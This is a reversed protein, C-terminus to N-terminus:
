FPRSGPSGRGGPGTRDGPNDRSGPGERSPRANRATRTGRQPPLGRPSVPRPRDDMAPRTIEPRRAPEAPGDVRVVGQRSFVRGLGTELGRVFEDHGLSKFSASALVPHGSIVRTLMGLPRDVPLGAAGALDGAAASAPAPLGAWYSLQQVPRDLLINHVDADFDAVTRAAVDAGAPDDTVWRESVISWAPGGIAPAIDQAAAAEIERALREEARGAVEGATEGPEPSITVTRREITVGVREARESGADAPRGPRPSLRAIRILEIRAPGVDATPGAEPWAEAPRRYRVLSGDQHSAPDQTRGPEGRDPAPEGHAQRLEGQAEQLQALMLRLEGQMSRVEAQAQGLEDRRQSLETEARQLRRELWEGREHDRRGSDQRQQREAELQEATEAFRRDVYRYFRWCGYEAVVLGAVTAIMIPIDARYLWPVAPRLILLWILGALSVSASLVQLPWRPVGRQILPPRAPPSGHPAAAAAERARMLQVLVRAAAALLHVALAGILFLRWSASGTLFLALGLGGGAVVTLVVGTRGGVSLLAIVLWLTWLSLVLYQGTM